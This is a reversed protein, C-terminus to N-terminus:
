LFGGSLSLLISQRTPGFRPSGKLSFFIDTIEVVIAILIMVLLAQWGIKGFGTIIAYVLIDAAILVLGPLGHICLFIGLFLFLIFLTLGFADPSSM